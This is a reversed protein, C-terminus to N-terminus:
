EVEHQAANATRVWRVYYNDWETSEVWGFGNAKYFDNSRSGRLAGVRVPLNLHDAEQLIHRLVQTGYGKGQAQPSIYLHDLYLHDAKPKVVVFGIRKGEVAIDRTLTPEFADLFRARARQADFRGVAELSERMAAVRIEALADADDSQVPRLVPTSHTM